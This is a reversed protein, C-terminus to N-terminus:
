FLYYKILGDRILHFNKKQEAGVVRVHHYSIYQINHIHKLEVCVCEKKQPCELMKAVSALCNSFLKLVHTCM